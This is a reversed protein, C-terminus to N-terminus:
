PEFTVNSYGLKLNAVVFSSFEEARNERFVKQLHEWELLNSGKLRAFAELHSADGEWISEQDGYYITVSLAKSSADFSVSVEDKGGHIVQSLYESMFVGLVGLTPTVYSM